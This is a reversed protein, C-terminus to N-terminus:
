TMPQETIVGASEAAPQLPALKNSLEKTKEGAQKVLDRYLAPNQERLQKLAKLTNPRDSKSYVIQAPNTVIKEQIVTFIKPMAPPVVRTRMAILHVLWALAGCAVTAIFLPHTAVGLASVVLVGFAAACVLQATQALVSIVDMRRAKYHQSTAKAHAASSEDFREQNKPTLSVPPAGILSPGSM